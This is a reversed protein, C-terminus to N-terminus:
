QHQEKPFFICSSFIHFINHYINLNVKLWDGSVNTSTLMMSLDTTIKNRVRWFCERHVLGDYLELRGHTLTTNFNCGKLLACM